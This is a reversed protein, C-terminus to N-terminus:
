RPTVDVVAESVERQGAAGLVIFPVSHVPVSIRVGGGRLDAVKASPEFRLEFPWELETALQFYRSLGPEIVTFRCTEVLQETHSPNNVIMRLSVDMAPSRGLNRVEVIISQFRSVEPYVNVAVQVITMQAAFPMIHFVHELIVSNNAYTAMLSPREELENAKRQELYTMFAFYGAVSAALFLGVSGIAIVWTPALLPDSTM